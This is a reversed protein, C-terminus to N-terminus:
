SEGGVGGEWGRSHWSLLAQSCLASCVCQGERQSGGGKLRIRPSAGARKEVKYSCVNKVKKNESM